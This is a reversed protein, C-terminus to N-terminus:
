HHDLKGSAGAEAFVFLWSKIGVHAQRVYGAQEMWRDM